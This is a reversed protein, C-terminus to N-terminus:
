AHAGFDIQLVAIHYSVAVTVCAAREPSFDAVHVLFLFVIALIRTSDFARKM